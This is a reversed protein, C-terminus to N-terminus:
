RRKQAHFNLSQKRQRLKLILEFKKKPDILTSACELQLESKTQKSESRNFNVRM